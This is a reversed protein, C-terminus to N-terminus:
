IGFAPRLQPAGAAKGPPTRKILQSLYRALSYHTFPESSVVGRTRPSIVTTLVTNDAGGDEDFTVIIALRGSTYDPGAMVRTLWSKLYDDATKLSCDHGDHCLDPILLGLNPLAGADIDSRLAGAAPTGSPVDYKQCNARSTPDTFYAWPNHKVAYPDKPGTYCNSPMSEAYTKATKGAAIATDLISPGKIGNRDPGANTTVGFTSGGIIALYNPLSPHTVAKYASTRGFTKGLSALYPMQALAASQGHNEEIVVLVKDPRTAKAHFSIAPAADTGTAQATPSAPRTSPAASGSATPAASVRATRASQPSGAGSSAACGTLLLAMATLALRHARTTTPTRAAM